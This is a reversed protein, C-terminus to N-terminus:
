CHTWRGDVTPVPEPNLREQHLTAIEIGGPEFDVDRLVELDGEVGFVGFLSSPMPAPCHATSESWEM